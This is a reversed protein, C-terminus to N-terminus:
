YLGEKVCVVWNFEVQRATDLEPVVMSPFSGSKAACCHIFGGCAAAALLRVQYNGLGLNKINPLKAVAAVCADDVALQPNHLLCLDTLGTLSSLHQLCAGSVRLCGRLNLAQALSVCVCLWCVPPCTLLLRLVASATLRLM